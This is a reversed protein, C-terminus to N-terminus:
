IGTVRLRELTLVRLAIQMGYLLVIDVIMSSNLNKPVDSCQIFVHFM